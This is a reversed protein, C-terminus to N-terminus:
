VAVAIEDLFKQCTQKRIRIIDRYYCSLAEPYHKELASYAEELVTEDFEIFREIVSIYAEAAAQGFRKKFDKYKIGYWGYGVSNLSHNITNAHFFQGIPNGDFYLILTQLVTFAAANDLKFLRKQEDLYYERSDEENVIVYLAEFEFNARFNNEYNDASSDNFNFREANPVYRIAASRRYDASGNILKVPQTYLELATAVKHYMFENCALEPFERGNKIIYQENPDTKSTALELEGSDGTGDPRLPHPFPAFTFDRANIFNNPFNDCM